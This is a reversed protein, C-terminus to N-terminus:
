TRKLEFICFGDHEENDVEFRLGHEKLDENVKNMIEEAQDDYEIQM